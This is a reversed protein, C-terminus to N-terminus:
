GSSWVEENLPNSGELARVRFRMVEFDELYGRFVIRSRANTTKQFVAVNAQLNPHM